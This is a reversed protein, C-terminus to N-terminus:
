TKMFSLSDTIMHSIVIHDQARTEDIIKKLEPSTGDKLMHRLAAELLSKESEIGFSPWAIKLQHNSLIKTQITHDEKM